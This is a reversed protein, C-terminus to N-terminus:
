AKVETDAQGLQEGVKDLAVIAERGAEEILGCATYCFAAEGDSNKTCRPRATGSECDNWHDWIAKTAVAAELLSAAGNANVVLHRMAPGDDSKIKAVTAGKADALLWSGSLLNLLSWPLPSSRGVLALYRALVDTSAADPTTAQRAARAASSEVIPHEKCAADGCGM